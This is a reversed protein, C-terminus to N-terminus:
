YFGHRDLPGVLQSEEYSLHETLTQALRDVAGRLVPLGDPASV